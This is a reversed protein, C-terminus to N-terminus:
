PNGDFDYPIKEAPLLGRALICWANWDIRETADLAAMLTKGAVFIGHKPALVAAAQRRICDEKGRLGQVVNASLDPSHAPAAKIVDVTGLKQTSELIMEIPRDAACFPLVHFPHGHVIGNVDPFSRYIALHVRSERSCLPHELLEDTEVSAQLIDEPTLQWHKRSGSYRPSIYIQGGERLSINGGSMDTLRREFLMRGIYAVLENPTEM